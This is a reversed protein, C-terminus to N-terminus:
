FYCGYTSQTARADSHLMTHLSMKSQPARTAPAFVTAKIVKASSHPPIVEKPLPAPAGTECIAM